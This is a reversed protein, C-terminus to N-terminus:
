GQGGRGLEFIMELEGGIGGYDGAALERNALLFHDLDAAHEGAQHLVNALGIPLSATTQDSDTSRQFNLAHATTAGAAPAMALRSSQSGGHTRVAYPCQCLCLGHMIYPCRGSVKPAKPKVSSSLCPPIVIVAVACAYRSSGASSRNSVLSGATSLRCASITAFDLPSVRLSYTSLDSASFTAVSM